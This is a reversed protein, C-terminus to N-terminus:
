EQPEQEALGQIRQIRMADFWISGGIMQESPVRAPLKLQLRQASCQSAPVAFDISFAKWNSSRGKWPESTALEANSGMCQVSWVLGLETRLDDVFVRGSLRYRGAPLVLTQRVGNFPVRRDAFDVKLAKEGVVGERFALNISAGPIHEFQWDFESGLPEREFSGNFLNALELQTQAPLETAWNLYALQWQQGQNLATLWAKQEQESLGAETKSLRNMFVAYREAAGKQAALTRIAPLRWAPNKILRGILAEQSQPHVALGGIVPILQPLLQLQMRLLRDLHHTAADSNEARLYYNMLWAHSELDRPSYRVSKQYLEFALGPKKEIEAAQGLIRYARGEFPYARLAAAANKKAQDLLTPAKIQQEALLFLAASHQPRWQLTQEPATRSKVDAMGLSLVRWALGILLLTLFMRFGFKNRRGANTDAM